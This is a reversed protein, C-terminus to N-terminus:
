NNFLIFLGLEDNRAVQRNESQPCGSRPMFTWTPDIVEDWDVDAGAQWRRFGRLFSGFILGTTEKKFLEWFLCFSSPM